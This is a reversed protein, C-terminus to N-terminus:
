TEGSRTRGGNEGPESAPRGAAVVVGVHVSHRRSAMSRIGGDRDSKEGRKKAREYGSRTRYREPDKRREHKECEEVYRREEASSM